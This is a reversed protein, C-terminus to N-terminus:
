RTSHRSARILFDSGRPELGPMRASLWPWRLGSRQINEHGIGWRRSCTTLRSPPAAVMTTDLAFSNYSSWRMDEPRKVPGKRVLNRHMDDLEDDFSFGVTM